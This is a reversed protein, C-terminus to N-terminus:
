QQAEVFLGRLLIDRIMQLDKPTVLREFDEGLANNIYELLAGITM